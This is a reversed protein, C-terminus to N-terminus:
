GGGRIGLGACVATPRKKKSKKIGSDIGGLAAPRASRQVTTARSCSDEDQPEKDPKEEVEVVGPQLEALPVVSGTTERCLADMRRGLELKEEKLAESYHFLRRQRGWADHWYHLQRAYEDEDRWGEEEPYDEDNPHGQFHVEAGNEDRTGDM